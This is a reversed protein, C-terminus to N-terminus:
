FDTNQLSLNIRNDLDFKAPHQRLYPDKPEFDEPIFEEYERLRTVRVYVAEQEARLYLPLIGTISQLATTPTTRYAGIIFLLFKRQITQLLKKQRSTINQAWAAAGHLIMREAM